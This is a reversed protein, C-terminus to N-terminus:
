RTFENSPEQDKGPEYVALLLRDWRRGKYYDHGRMRGEVHLGRGIASAFQPLNFEPLELYLKHFPWVDFLYEFFLLVPEVVIGTGQYQPVMAAGVYAHGLRLDANYCAVHGAPQNAQISEVVFQALVGQWLEHEFKQIPPVAGRFRWRFGVDPSVCLSYLFAVSPPMVPTLRFFNGAMQLPAAVADTSSSADDGLTPTAPPKATVSGAGQARYRDYLEGVTQTTLWEKEDLEGALEAL